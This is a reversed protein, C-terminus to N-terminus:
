KSYKSAEQGAYWLAHYGNCEEDNTVFVVYDGKGQKIFKQMNEYVDKVTLAVM